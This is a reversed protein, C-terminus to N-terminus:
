FHIGLILRVEAREFEDLNLRDGTTGKLAVIQPLITLTIWWSETRYHIAPGLFLAAHRLDEMDALVNAERLELGLSFRDSLRWAAGATLELELEKETEERKFEWEQEATANLALVLRDLNKGLVLKQELELEDFSTTLEGYALVGVPDATPDSLKYKWESSLGEFEFSDEVQSRRDIHLSKLNLYLASTLRDTIGYELESRLDWRAFVGSEKGARLTAWQEFELTGAPLTKPEYSFTFHREDADLAPSVLPVFAALAIILLNKLPEELPM